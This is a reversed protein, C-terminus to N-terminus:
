YLAYNNCFQVSIGGGISPNNKFPRHNWHKDTLTPPAAKADLFLLAGGM